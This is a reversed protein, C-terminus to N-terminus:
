KELSDMLAKELAGLESFAAPHGLEGARQLDGVAGERDGLEARTIGRMYYGDAHNPLLTIVHSYDAAALEREGLVYMCNGRNLYPAAFTSDFMIAATYSYYAESYDKLAQRCNGSKFYYQANDPFHVLLTDFVVRAEWYRGTGLLCNGRQYQLPANLGTDPLLSDVRAYDALALAYLSDVTNDRARLALAQYCHGRQFYSEPECPDFLLAMGFDALAAHFSWALRNCVGRYLFAEKVARGYPTQIFQATSYRWPFDADDLDDLLEPPMKARIALLAQSYDGVAADWQRLKQRAKARNFFGEPEEPRHFVVPAYDALAMKLSDRYQWINGRNNLAQVLTSDAQALRTYTRMASDLDHHQFALNGVNFQEYKETSHCGVGLLLCICCTVVWLREM